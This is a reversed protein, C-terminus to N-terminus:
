NKLDDPIEPHFGFGQTMGDFRLNQMSRVIQPGGGMDTFLRGEKDLLYTVYTVPPMPDSEMKGDRGQRRKRRLEVRQDWEERPEVVEVKSVQVYGPYPNPLETVSFEGKSNTVIQFLQDRDNIIVPGESNEHFRFGTPTGTPLQLEIEKPQDDRVFVQAKIKDGWISIESRVRFDNTRTSAKLTVREAPTARQYQQYVAAEKYRGGGEEDDVPHDLAWTGVGIADQKSDAPLLLFENDDIGVLRGAPLYELANMQYRYNFLIKRGSKESLLVVSERKLERVLPRVFKDSAHVYAVRKAYFQLSPHVNTASVGVKAATEMAAAYAGRYAPSPDCGDRRGHCRTHHYGNGDLHRTEHLITMLTGLHSNKYNQAEFSGPCFYIKYLNRPAPGAFAGAGVCNRSGGPIAPGWLISPSKSQIRYPLDYGLIEQNYNRSPAPGDLRLEDAFILAEVVRYHRNSSDCYDPQQGLQITYRRLVSNVKQQPLCPKKPAEAWAFVSCSILLSLALKKV